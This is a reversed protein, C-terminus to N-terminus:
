LFLCRMLQKLTLNFWELFESEYSYITTADMADVQRCLSIWFLQTMAPVSLSLAKVLQSYVIESQNTTFKWGKVPMGNSVKVETWDGIRVSFSFFFLFSFLSKKHGYYSFAQSSLKAVWLTKLYTYSLKDKALKFSFAYSIM